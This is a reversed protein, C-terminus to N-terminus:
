ELIEVDAGDPFSIISGNVRIRHMVPENLLFTTGQHVVLHKRAVPKESEPVDSIDRTADAKDWDALKLLYPKHATVFQRADILTRHFHNDGNHCLVEFRKSNGAKPMHKIYADIHKKTGYRPRRTKNDTAM